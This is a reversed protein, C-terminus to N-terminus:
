EATLMRRSAAPRQGSALMRQLRRDVNMVGVNALIGATIGNLLGAFAGAICLLNPITATRSVKVIEPDYGRALEFLDALSEYSSGLLVVDGVIVHGNLGGAAVAVHAERVLEPRAALNGVYM